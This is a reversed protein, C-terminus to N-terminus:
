TKAACSVPDKSEPTKELVRVPKHLRGAAYLSEWDLLDAVLADRPFFQNKLHALWKFIYM